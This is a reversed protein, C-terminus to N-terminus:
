WDPNRDHAPDDTLRILGAGDANMVYIELNGDRSSSFALRTGDPSWAARDAFKPDDLFMKQGSGDANMVCIGNCFYTIQENDASWSPFTSFGTHTLRQPNTGDANMVYIEVTDNERESVFAIRDGDPSWSPHYDAAQNNTLNTLGSGDLKIKYIEYDSTFAIWEGDGSWTPEWAGSPINLLTAQQTGDANMICFGGPCAYAIQKKDPSWVPSSGGSNTLRVVESGDANMVYIESNGDRDSEFVIHTDAMKGCASILFGLLLSIFARLKVQKSLNHM